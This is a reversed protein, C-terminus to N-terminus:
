MPGTTHTFGAGRRIAHWGEHEEACQLKKMSLTISDRLAEADDAGTDLYLAMLKKHLARQKKKADKWGKDNPNVTDLQKIEAEIEAVTRKRASVTPLRAQVDALKASLNTYVFGGAARASERVIAFSISTQDLSFLDLFTEALAQFNKTEDQGYQPASTQRTLINQSHKPEFRSWRDGLHDTLATAILFSTLNLCVEPNFDARWRESVHGAWMTGNLKVVVEGDDERIALSGTGDATSSMMGIGESSAVSLSRVRNLWWVTHAVHRSEEYTMECFRFDFAPQDHVVNYFVMGGAWSRAYALYSRKPDVRLFYHCDVANYSKDSVDTFSLSCTDPPKQGDRDDVALRFRKRHDPYRNEDATAFAASKPDLTWFKAPIHTKIVNEWELESMNKGDGMYRVIDENSLGKLSAYHYPKSLDKPSPKKQGRKAWPDDQTTHEDVFDADKPFVLKAKKLREFEKFV